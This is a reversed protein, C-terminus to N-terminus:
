PNLVWIGLSKDNYPDAPRPERERFLEQPPGLNYPAQELNLPRWAGPKKHDVNKKEPFTTTILLRSGSQRFHEIAALGESFSLHVLCDRCFIADAKPLTTTVIDIVDFSVGKLDPHARNVEILAPVIDFGRYSELSSRLESFWLGDGCPADNLTRIQYREFTSPLWNRIRATVALASGPGSVSQKGKWSNNQFIASFADARDTM